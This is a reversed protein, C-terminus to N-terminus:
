RECVENGRRYGLKVGTMAAQMPTMDTPFWYNGDATKITKDMGQNCRDLGAALDWITMPVIPQCM